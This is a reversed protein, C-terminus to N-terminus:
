YLFEDFIKELITPRRFCMHTMKVGGAVVRKPCVYYCYLKDLVYKQIKCIFLDTGM